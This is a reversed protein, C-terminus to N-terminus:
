NYVSSNPSNGSSSYYEVLGSFTTINAAASFKRAFVYGVDHAFRLFGKTTLVRYRNPRELWLIRKKEGSTFDWVTPSQSTPTEHCIDTYPIDQYFHGSRHVLTQVYVEDACHVVEEAGIRELLVPDDRIGGIAERTLSIWQTCEVVVEKEERLVVTMSSKSPDWQEGESVHGPPLIFPGQFLYSPHQVPLCHGSVLYVIDAEPCVRVVERFGKLMNVAINKHGWETPELPVELQTIREDRYGEECLAFLRIGAHQSAWDLWICPNQIGKHALILIGILM